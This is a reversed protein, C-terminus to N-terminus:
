GRKLWPVIGHNEYVFVLLSTLFEVERKTKHFVWGLILWKLTPM